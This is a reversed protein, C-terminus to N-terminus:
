GSLPDARQENAREATDEGRWLAPVGRGATREEGEVAGPKGQHSSEAAEGTALASRLTDRRVKGVKRPGAERRGVRRVLFRGTRGMFGGGGPELAHWTRIIIRRFM